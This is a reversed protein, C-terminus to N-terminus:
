LTARLATVYSIDPRIAYAASTDKLLNRVNQALPSLTSNLPPLSSPDHTLYSVFRPLTVDGANTGQHRSAKKVRLRMQSYITLNVTRPIPDLVYRNTLAQRAPPRKGM